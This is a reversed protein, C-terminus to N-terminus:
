KTRSGIRWRGAAEEVEYNWEGDLRTVWPFGRFTFGMAERERDTVDIADEDPSTATLLRQVMSCFAAQAAEAEEFNRPGYLRIRDIDLQTV